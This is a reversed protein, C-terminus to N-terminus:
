AKAADAAASSPQAAAISHLVKPLEHRVNDKLLYTLAGANLMARRFGDDGHMSLAIVEVCPSERKIRTTAEIGNLQPMLVDTVVIDPHMEHALRVAQEGDVAEALLEFGPLKNILKRVRRRFSENDDVLLVRM